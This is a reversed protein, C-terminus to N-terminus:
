FDSPPAREDCRAPYAAKLLRIVNGATPAPRPSQVFRPAGLMQPSEGLDAELRWNGRLVDAVLGYRL